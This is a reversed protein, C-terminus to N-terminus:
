ENFRRRSALKKQFNPGLESEYRSIAEVLLLVQRSNGAEFCAQVVYNAYPDKLLQLLRPSTAVEVIIANGVSEDNKDRKKIIKELVNSSHKQM